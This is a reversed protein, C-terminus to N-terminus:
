LSVQPVTMPYGLLPLFFGTITCQGNLYNVTGIKNVAYQGSYLLNGDGDDFTQLGGISGELTGPVVPPFELCFKEFSVTGNEARIRRVKSHRLQELSLKKINM